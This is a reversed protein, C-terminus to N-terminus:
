PTVGGLRRAAEGARPSSPHERALRAFSSRAEDNRGLSAQCEGTAFLAEARLVSKGDREAWAFAELAAEYQRLRVCLLRGRMLAIEAARPERPFRRGFEEAETLAETFRHQEILTSLLALKVEAALVGGPFRAEYQRFLAVAERRNKASRELLGWAFIANEAALTNGEAARAYCDRREDVPKDRCLSVRERGDDLPALPSALFRPDGSSISEGALLDVWRGEPSEVRVKGEDVKVTSSREDTWVEFRTGIVSVQLHPTLLMLRSGPSQHAIEARVWGASLTIQRESAGPGAPPGIELRSLRAAILRGDKGLDVTRVGASSGGSFLSVSLWIVAAVAALGVAGGAFVFRARGRPPAGATSERVRQWLQEEAPSPWRRVERAEEILRKLEWSKWDSSM